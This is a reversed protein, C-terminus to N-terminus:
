RTRGLNGLVTDTLPKGKRLTAVIESDLPWGFHTVERWYIVRAPSKQTDVVMKYRKYARGNGSVAVIDASYQNSHVTIYQGIGTAKTQDLVETVWAITNLNESTSNTTRYAILDDVDKEELGPLCMLVEKSATNVNVLGPLTTEGSTTLRDAVQTFEEFTMRSRYYFQLISTYTTGSTLNTLIELARDEKFTDTLLTQLDSRAASDSVNIRTNGDSDVNAETSYVTVYDYFGRDLKGDANDPPESVDGDNEQPDLLGNLNTDEGYLLDESAGKVLLIEDVTEFPANKCHYPSPQLLYYEDEAGGATVDSDTDRWDIISAALEATMGPLKQLMEQSATNLDIKGAEDTLGYRYDRDDELNSQLVWFYGEGVPMAEYDVATQTTSTSVMATQTEAQEAIKAIVYQQAGFAIHEAELSAAQNASVGAAIRISRAFVLALGALVLVIWLTVILVTGGQPHGIASPLNAASGKNGEGDAIPWGCADRGPAWGVKARIARHQTGSQGTRRDRMM